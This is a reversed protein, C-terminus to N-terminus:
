VKDKKDRRNDSTNGKNEGPIVLLSYYKPSKFKKLLESLENLIPATLENKNKNMNYEAIRAFTQADTAGKQLDLMLLDYEDKDKEGHIYFITKSVEEALKTIIEIEVESGNGEKILHSKFLDDDIESGLILSIFFLGTNHTVKDKGTHKHGILLSGLLLWAAESPKINEQDLSDLLDILYEKRDTVLTKSRLYHLGEGFNNQNLSYETFFDFRNSDKLIIDDYSDIIEKRDQVTKENDFYSDLINHNDNNAEQSNIINMYTKDMVLAEIANVVELLKDELKNYFEDLIKDAVALTDHDLGNILTRKSKKILIGEYSMLFTIFSTCSRKAELISKTLTSNLGSVRDAEKQYNSKVKNISDQKQLSTAISAIKIAVWAGAFGIAISGIASIYGSENQTILKPSILFALSAGGTHVIGFILVLFIILVITIALLEIPSTKKIKFM